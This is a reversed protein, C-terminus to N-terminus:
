KKKKSLKDSNGSGWTGSDKDKMKNFEDEGGQLALPLLATLIALVGGAVAIGIPADVAGYEYGDAEEALAALPSTAVVAATTAIIQTFREGIPKTSAELPSVVPRAAQRPAFASVTQVALLAMLLKSVISRAM